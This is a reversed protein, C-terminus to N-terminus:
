RKEGRQEMLRLEWPQLNIETDTGLWSLRGLQPKGSINVMIVATDGDPARFANHLIAPLDHTVVVPRWRAVDRVKVWFSLRYSKGIALKTGDVPLVQKVHVADDDSPSALRVAYAGSHVDKEERHFTGKFTKGQYESIHAWGPALKGADPWEEFGPNRMLNEGTGGVETLEFDDFLLEGKQRLSLPIHLEASGSTVTIELTKRQWPGAGAPIEVPCSAHDVLAALGKQMTYCQVDLSSAQSATITQSFRETELRPPHLTRGQMLYKGSGAAALKAWQSLIRFVANGSRQVDAYSGDSQREDLCVQDLWVSGKGKLRLTIRLARTGEPIAFDLADERWGQQAAAERTWAGLEKWLQWDTHSLAALSVAGAGGALESKMMFRLRYSQGIKLPSEAVPLVQYAHIEERDDSGTLRLAAQGAGAAAADVEARAPGHPQNRWVTWGSPQNTAAEFGGNKVQPEGPFEIQRPKCSPIEGSVVARALILAVPETHSPIHFVPLYENYLYPFVPAHLRPNKDWPRVNIVSRAHRYDFLGFDQAFLEQPSEMSFIMGPYNKDSQQRLQRMQEHYADPDWRGFGPPHGHDPSFCVTHDDSPWRGGVVQDLQVVDVGRAAMKDVSACFFARTWADGRCLAASQGGRLWSLSKKVLAGSRDKIAHPEGVATFDRTDDWAFSGDPQRDYTLSWQYTSPFLCVHGGMAHIRRTMNTFAEDSPYYPEYKPAVWAGVHEFSFFTLFPPMDPFHKAWNGALWAQVAEPPGDDRLEWQVRICGRKVWDPIDRREAVTSACWPQTLAWRKHLDAADRWDCPAAPDASRFATCIVDYPLDYPTTLAHHSQHSWTYELGEKQRVITIRKPTGVGDQTATFVGGSPDYLCAFQAALSGPQVYSRQYGVRWDGPAAYAGDETAGALARDDSRDTGLRDTLVMAPFRCDELVLAAPGSVSLRWRILPDGPSVTARCQVTLAPYEAFGDYRLSATERGSERILEVALRRAERAGLTVTDGSREGARTATLQFLPAGPGPAIFEQGTARDKLSVVAGQAAKSLTLTSSESRLIVRDAEEQVGVQGWSPTALALLLIYSLTSRADM